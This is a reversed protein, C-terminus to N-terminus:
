PALRVPVRNVVVMADRPETVVTVIAHHETKVGGLEVPVPEISQWRRKELDLNACGVLAPVSLM